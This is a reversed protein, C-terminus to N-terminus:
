MKSIRNLLQFLINSIGKILITSNEKGFEATYTNVFKSVISDNLDTKDPNFFNSYITYKNKDLESINNDKIFKDVNDICLKINCSYNTTLVFSKDTTSTQIYKVIKLIYFYQTYLYKTNNDLEKMKANKSLQENDINVDKLIIPVIDNMLFNLIELTKPYDEYIKPMQGTLDRVDKLEPKDMLIDQDDEQKCVTEKVEEKKTESQVQPEPEKTSIIEIVVPPGTNGNQPIRINAEPKNNLLRNDNTLVNYRGQGNDDQITAPVWVPIDQKNYTALILVEVSEGEKYKSNTMGEICRKNNTIMFIIILFICFATVLIKYNRKKFFWLYM